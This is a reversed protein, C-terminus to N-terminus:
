LELQFSVQVPIATAEVTQEADNQLNM